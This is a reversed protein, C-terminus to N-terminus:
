GKENIDINICLVYYLLNFFNKINAFFKNITDITGDDMDDLKKNLIRFCIIFIEDLLIISLM